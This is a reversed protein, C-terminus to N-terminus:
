PSDIPVDGPGVRSRAPHLDGRVLTTSEDTRLALECM